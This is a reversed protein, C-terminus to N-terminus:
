GPPTATTVVSRGRGCAPRGPGGRGGRGPGGGGRTGTFDGDGGGCDCCCAEYGDPFTVIGAAASGTSRYARGSM